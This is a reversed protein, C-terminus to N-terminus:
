LFNSACHVFLFSLAFLILLLRWEIKLKYWISFFFIMHPLLVPFSGGAEGPIRSLLPWDVRAVHDVLASPQLGLIVPAPAADAASVGNGNGNTQFEIGM